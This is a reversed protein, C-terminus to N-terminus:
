LLMPIQNADRPSEASAIDADDRLASKYQTLTTEFLSYVPAGTRTQIKQWIYRGSSRKVLVERAQAHMFPVSDIVTFSSLRKAAETYFRAAGILFCHVPRGVEELITVLQDFTRRGFNSDIRAGTQFEVTVCNVETHELLFDRWFLWDSETNANMHLSVRVGAESLREAALLIRKRNRLIQFRPVCTFYSFNPVTVGFGLTALSKCVGSSRHEAWFAELPSDHDVGVLLVVADPQLRYAARLSEANPFKVGYKGSATKSLIDAFPIGVVPAALPRSPRLQRGQLLPMYRPFGTKNLSLLKGVSYDVLGGVDDWLQWFREPSLPNMDDTNIPASTAAYNVCGLQYIIPEPHGGCPQFVICNTCGTQGM